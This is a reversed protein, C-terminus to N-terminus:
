SPFPLTGTKVRDGYTPQPSKPDVPLKLAKDLCEYFAKEVKQQDAPPATLKLAETIAPGDMKLEERLAASLVAGFPNRVDKEAGRAHCTFCLNKKVATTFQQKAEPSSFNQKQWAADQKVKEADKATREGIRERFWLFFRTQGMAAPGSNILLVGILVLVLSKRSKIM